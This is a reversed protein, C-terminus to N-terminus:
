CWCRCQRDNRFLRSLLDAVASARGARAGALLILRGHAESTSHPRQPKFVCPNLSVLGCIRLVRSLQQQMLADGEQIVLTKWAPAFCYMNAADPLVAARMLCGLHRYRTDLLVPDCLGCSKGVRSQTLILNRDLHLASCHIDPYHAQSSHLESYSALFPPFEHFGNLIETIFIRLAASKAELSWQKALPLAVKEVAQAATETADYTSWVSVAISYEQYPSCPAFAFPTSVM